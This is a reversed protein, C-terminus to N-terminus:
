FGKHDIKFQHNLYAKKENRVSMTVLNRLQKYEDWAAVTKSKKYKSLAKDRLRMM